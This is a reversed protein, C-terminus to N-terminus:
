GLDDFVETKKAEDNYDLFPRIVLKVSSKQAMLVCKHQLVQAGASVIELCENYSLKQILKANKFENPNLDYIGNVDKFFEVHRAKLHAGLAVATADTGGRGLTTIEGNESMGQFGAVIPIYGQQLASVIRRPRVEIIEADQTRDDTANEIGHSNSTLIGAQSGTFSMALCNKGFLSMALLSMSIREGVSLLMDLERKPPNRNVELAMKHLDDTSDGMASIAVVVHEFKKKRDLIIEAIKEFQCLSAVAAGGFKLVVLNSFDPPM